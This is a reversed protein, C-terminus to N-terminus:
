QLSEFLSQITALSTQFEIWGIRTNLKQTVLRLISLLGFVLLVQFLLLSEPFLRFRLALQLQSELDGKKLCMCMHKWSKRHCGWARFRIM